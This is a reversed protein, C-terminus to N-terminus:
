VKSVNHSRLVSLVAKIRSVNVTKGVYFM